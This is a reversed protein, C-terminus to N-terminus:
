RAPAQRNVIVEYRQGRGVPHLFLAFRGLSPHTFNYTASPIAAAVGGDFVLSFADGTVPTASQGRAPLDTAEVLTLRTRPGAATAVDFSTGVYPLFDALVHPGSGGQPLGPDFLRRGGVHAVAALAVVEGAGRLLERRSLVVGDVGTM